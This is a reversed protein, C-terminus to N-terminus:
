IFLAVKGPCAPRVGGAAEAGGLVLWGGTRDRWGVGTGGRYPAGCGTLGRGGPVKNSVGDHIELRRGQM